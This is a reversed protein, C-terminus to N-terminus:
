LRAPIADELHVQTDLTNLLQASRQNIDDILNRHKEKLSLLESSINLAALILIARKDPKPVQSACQQSVDDVSKAVFDAIAKAEAVDSDTKFTFPQGLVEITLLRDLTVIM